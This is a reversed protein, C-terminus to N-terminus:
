LRRVSKVVPWENGIAFIWRVGNHDLVSTQADSKDEVLDGQTLALEAQEHAWTSLGPEAKPCDEQWLRLLRQSIRDLAHSSVELEPMEHYRGRRLLESKALLVIEPKDVSQVIWRLYGVPIDTWKEGAHKKGFTCVKNHTDIPTFDLQETNM